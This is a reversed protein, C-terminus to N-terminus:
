LRKRPDGHTQVWDLFAAVVKPDFQTGSCRRIEAVADEFSRASKYRRDSVIADFAEAVAIIRAGLPIQEGKLGDPYGHGDFFEHHHRVMREIAPEKLPELMKAGRAAHSKVLDFEEPTLLTPKRLVDEPVGLTGIDHVIGAAKIDQIERESLGMQKAIQAAWWSVAESHNNKPPGKAEKGEVTDLLPKMQEFRHRYHNNIAENGNSFMRKVTVGLCADLLAQEREANGAAIRLSAVRVCNGECQKALYMGADAVSLIDEPTPGHNPFSAVGISATVRHTHLFHDVQLATRLREALIEAQETTTEPMLIAFEDERYRAVVNPQKLREDLLAAVATLVKDGEPRGMRDNVQKFGDLDLLIVSFQRGSRASRRWEGHLAEKFFRHTKLGTLGDTVFEAM